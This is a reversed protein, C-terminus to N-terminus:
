KMAFIEISNASVNLVTQVARMLELRVRANKAGQAVVIVGKVEPMIEKTVYLKSSGNSSVIIPTETVTSTSNNISGSGSSSNTHTSKTNAIVKETSGSYTIMVEVMGAGSIQSLVQELRREVQETMELASGETPAETEANKKRDSSILSYGLLLLAIVIVAIIIEINKVAKLRGYIERFKEKYSKAM